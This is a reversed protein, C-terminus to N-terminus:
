ERDLLYRWEVYCCWSAWSGHVGIGAPFKQGEGLLGKAGCIRSYLKMAIRPFKSNCFSEIPEINPLQRHFRLWKKGPESKWSLYDVRTLNMIVECYVGYFVVLGQWTWTVTWRELSMIPWAWRVYYYRHGAAFSKTCLSCVLLRQWANYAGRSSGKRIVWSTADHCAKESSVFRQVYYKSSMYM